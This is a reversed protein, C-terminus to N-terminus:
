FSLDLGIGLVLAKKKYTEKPQLDIGGLYHNVTKSDDMYKTFSAGLNVKINDTISYAGGAGFTHTALGYTLDSQYLSNVGKNAYVYGASVLIKESLGLEAGAQLSMGNQDIIESNSIPVLYDTSNAPTADVYHGYDASKDFYYNGGANIKLKSVKLEAGVALMAPM